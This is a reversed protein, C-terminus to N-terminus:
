GHISMLQPFHAIIGDLIFEISIAALILGMVKNLVMTGTQGIKPGLVLASRFVLFVILAVSLIVANVLLKHPIGEHASAYIVIASIAGPGALLPIGIPVIGVTSINGTKPSDGSSPLRILGMMNLAYFLILIGGAIKFAGITIGFLNLIYFGIYSFILLTIIYTVTAISVIIKKEPLSFKETLGLLVPLTGFPETLALLGILLKSYEDWNLLDSWDM